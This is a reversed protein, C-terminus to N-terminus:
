SVRAFIYRSLYKPPTRPSQVSAFPSQPFDKPQPSTATYSFLSQTSTVEPLAQASSLPRLFRSGSSMPALETAYRSLRLRVCLRTNTIPLRRRYQTFLSSKCGKSGICVPSWYSLLIQKFQPRSLATSAKEMFWVRLSPVLTRRGRHSSHKVASLPLRIDGLNRRSYRAACPGSIPSRHCHGIQLFYLM